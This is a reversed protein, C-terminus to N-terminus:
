VIFYCTLIDFQRKESEILNETYETNEVYKLLTYYASEDM